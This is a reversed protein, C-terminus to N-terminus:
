RQQIRASGVQFKVEFFEAAPVGKTVLQMNLQIGQKTVGEILPVVQELTVRWAGSAGDFAPLGYPFYDTLKIGLGETFELLADFDQETYRATLFESGRVSEGAM